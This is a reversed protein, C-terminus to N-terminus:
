PEAENNHMSQLAQALLAGFLGFLPTILALAARVLLAVLIAGLAWTGLSTIDFQAPENKASWLLVAALVIMGPKLPSAKKAKKRSKEMPM